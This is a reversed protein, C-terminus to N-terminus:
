RILEVTIPLNLQAWLRDSTLVPANLAMAEAICLRDGLSLGAFISLRAAFMASAETHAVIPLQLKSVSSAAQPFSAGKRQLVDITETLNALPLAATPLANQVHQAGPEGLLFALLASSDLLNM